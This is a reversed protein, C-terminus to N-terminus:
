LRGRGSRHKRALAAGEYATRTRRAGPDGCLWQPVVIAAPVKEASMVEFHDADGFAEPDVLVTFVGM